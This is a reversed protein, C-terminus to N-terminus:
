QAVKLKTALKFDKVEHQLLQKTPEDQGTSPVLQRELQALRAKHQLERQQLELESQMASELRKKLIQIMNSDQNQFSIFQQFSLGNWKM